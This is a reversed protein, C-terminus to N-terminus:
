VAPAILPHRSFYHEWLKRAERATEHHEVRINSELEDALMSQAAADQARELVLLCAALQRLAEIQLKRAEAARALELVQRLQREAVAAHGIALM